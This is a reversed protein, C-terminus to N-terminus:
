VLTSPSAGPQAGPAPSGLLAPHVLLWTFTFLVMSTITQMLLGQRPLLSLSYHNM